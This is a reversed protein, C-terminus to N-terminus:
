FPINQINIEEEHSQQPQATQRPAQQTQQAQKEQFPFIQYVVPSDNMELIRSVNGDDKEFVTMTGVPLWATKEQGDNSQYKKARVVNFRKVM